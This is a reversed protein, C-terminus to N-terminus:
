YLGGWRELYALSKWALIEEPDIRYWREVTAKSFWHM